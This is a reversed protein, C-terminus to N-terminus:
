RHAKHDTSLYGFQKLHRECNNQFYEVDDQGLTKKFRGVRSGSIPSQTLKKWDITQGPELDQQYFDLMEKRFPIMLFQCLDILTERTLSVLDEYRVTLTREDSLTAFSNVVASVNTNWENAIEDALGPLAPRYPSDSKLTELERYSCAVDRVDRIIHVFRSTPFMDALEDVHTMHFNNKDGWYKATPKFQSAFALYVCEVLRAYNDPRRM